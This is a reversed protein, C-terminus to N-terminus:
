PSEWAIWRVVGVMGDAVGAVLDGRRVCVPGHEGLVGDTTPATRAALVSGDGDVLRTAVPTNAAFAVRVCADRGEARVLEVREGARSQKRTAERMGPALAAAQSALGAFGGARPRGTEPQAPAQDVPSPTSQLGDVPWGAREPPERASAPARSLAAGCACVLLVFPVAERV